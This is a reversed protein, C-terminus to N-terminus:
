VRDPFVPPSWAWDPHYAPRTAMHISGDAWLWILVDTPEQLQQCGDPSLRVIWRACGDNDAEIITRPKEPIYDLGETEM